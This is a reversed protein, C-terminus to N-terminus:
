YGTLMKLENELHEVCDKMTYSIYVGLQKDRYGEKVAEVSYTYGRLAIFKRVKDYPSTESEFDIERKRKEYETICTSTAETFDGDEEDTIVTYHPVVLYEKKCESCHPDYFAYAGKLTKVKSFDFDADDFVIHGKCNPVVCKWAVIAM